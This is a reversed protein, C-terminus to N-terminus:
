RCLEALIFYDLAYRLFKMPEDEFGGIKLYTFRPFQIFYSGYQQLVVKDKQLLPCYQFVIIEKSWVGHPLPTLNYTWSIYYTLYSGMYFGERSEKACKLKARLSSAIIEAWDMWQEGKLIIEIYRYMREKFLFVNASGKISHLFVVMEHIHPKM